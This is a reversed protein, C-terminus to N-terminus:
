KMSATSTSVVHVAHDHKKVQLINLPGGFNVNIKRRGLRQYHYNRLRSFNIVDKIPYVNKKRFYESNYSPTITALIPLFDHMVSIRRARRNRQLQAVQYNAGHDKAFQQGVEVSGNRVRFAIRMTHRDNLM